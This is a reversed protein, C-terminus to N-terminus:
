AAQEAQSIADHKKQFLILPIFTITFAGWGALLSLPLSAYPFTVHAAIMLPVMAMMMLTVQRGSTYLSHRAEYSTFVGVMPFVSMFGQLVSKMIVLFWVLLTVLPLKVFVPLSSRHGPEDIDPLNTYFGAAFVIVFICSGWFWLDGSPVLKAAAAGLFCYVAASILISVFISVRFRRHLIRVLHTYIFLNILGLVNLTGVQKGLALSAVTFPIPLCLIFAKWRADYLYAVITAEISVIVLLVLDWLGFHLNM